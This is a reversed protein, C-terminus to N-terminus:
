ITPTMRLNQSLLMDKQHDYAAFSAAKLADFSYAKSAGMTIKGKESLTFDMGRFSETNLHPLAPPIVRDLPEKQDNSAPTYDLGLKECIRRALHNLVWLTPHNFTFFLRHKMHYDEILDSISVDCYQDRQMLSDLSARHIRKAEAEEDLSSQPQALHQARWANFIRIDHYTELPGLIRGSAPNTIYRLFPQQGTYFANPWIITNDPSTAKVVNSRLHPLAFSPDTRQSLIIDAQALSELHRETESEQALHLIIPDLLSINPCIRAVVNGIPRAQCNGIVLLKM